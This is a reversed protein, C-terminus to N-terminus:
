HYLNKRKEDLSSVTKKLDKELEKIEEIALAKRVDEKLDTFYNKIKRFFIIITKFIAPYDKAAGCCSCCRHGFLLETRSIDFM